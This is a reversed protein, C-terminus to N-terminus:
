CLQAFKNGYANGREKSKTEQTNIATLATKEKLVSFRQGVTERDLAIIEFTLCIIYKYIYTYIYIYIYIYIYKMNDSLYGAPNNIKPLLGISLVIIKTNYIKTNYIREPTDNM